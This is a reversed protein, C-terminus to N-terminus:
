SMSPPLAPSGTFLDPRDVIKARIGAYFQGITLPPAAELAETTRTSSKL